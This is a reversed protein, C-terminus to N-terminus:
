PLALRVVPGEYLRFGEYRDLAKQYAVAPSTPAPVSPATAPTAGPPPPDDEIPSSDAANAM